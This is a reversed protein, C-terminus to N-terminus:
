QEFWQVSLSCTDTGSGNNKITISYNINPSNQPLSIPTLDLVMPFGGAGGLPVEVATGTGVNSATWAKALPLVSIQQPNLSVITAATATADTDNQAQTVLFANANCQAV